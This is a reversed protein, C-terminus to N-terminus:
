FIFIPLALQKELSIGIPTKAMSWQHFYKQCNRSILLVNEPNGARPTCFQM